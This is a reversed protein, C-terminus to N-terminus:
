RSESFPWYGHGPLRRRTAHQTATASRAQQREAHMPLHRRLAQGGGGALRLVPQRVGAAVLAVAVAQEVLDRRGVDLIQLQLPDILRRDRAVPLGRREDDVAIIYM